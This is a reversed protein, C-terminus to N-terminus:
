MPLRFQRKWLTKGDYGGGKNRYWSGFRFAIIGLRYDRWNTVKGTTPEYDGSGKLGSFLAYNNYPHHGGLEFFAGFHHTQDDWTNFINEAYDTHLGPAVPDGPAGKINVTAVTSVPIMWSTKNAFVMSYIDFVDYGTHATFPIMDAFKQDATAASFLYMWDLTSGLSAGTNGAGEGWKAWARMIDIFYGAGSYSVEYCAWTRLGDLAWKAAQAVSSANCNVLIYGEGASFHKWTNWLGKAEFTHDWWDIQDLVFKLKTGHSRELEDRVDKTTYLGTPDQNSIPNDTAYSYKNRDGINALNPRYPDESILRGTGLDYYRARLNYQGSRDMQQNRYLYGTAPSSYQGNTVWTHGFGTQGDSGAILTGYADYGYNELTGGGAGSLLRTSGGGDALLVQLGTGSKGWNAAVVNLDFADVMGDLNFDGQAIKQADTGTVTMQWHTAMINLDFADVSADGTADGPVVASGAGTVKQAIVQLGLLYTRNVAGNAWDMLVQTYGIRTSRAPFPISGQGM